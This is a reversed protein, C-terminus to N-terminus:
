KGEKILNAHARLGNAVRENDQKNAVDLILDVKAKIYAESALLSSKYLGLYKPESNIAIMAVFKKSQKNWSVGQPYKGRSAACNNLLTNVSQDIFGCFEPSYIKNGPIIIDKDLQKLKWDQTQMWKKFVSFILWEDCVSCGIYSRQREKFVDSFCRELMNSWRKYFPCTITKGNIEPNTIYDADNIGVGYLPKRKGISKKCAPKEIFEIFM